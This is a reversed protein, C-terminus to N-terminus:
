KGKRLQRLRETLEAIQSEIEEEENKRSGHEDWVNMAEDKKKRSISIYPEMAQISSHGTYEIVQTATLGMDLSNVVFTKRGVHTTMLEYKKYVTECKEHQRYEVKRIQQTLGALKGIQKLYLEVSNMNLFPFLNEGPQRMYKEVIRMAYRNLRNEIYTGTKRITLHMFGDEIDTKRLAMVDSHRLGTYCQFLFIDRSLDMAGELELSEVAGIEDMTLFVVLSERKSPTKLDFKYREFDNGCYGKRFCWRLFWRLYAHQNKASRNSMGKSVCWEIYRTVGDLTALKAITTNPDFEGLKRLFGRLNDLTTDALDRRHKESTLFELWVDSPTRRSAPSKRGPKGKAKAMLASFNIDEVDGEGRAIKQCEWEIDDHFTRLIKMCERHNPHAKSKDYPENNYDARLAEIQELSMNVGITTNYRRHMVCVSLRVSYRGKKDTWSSPSIRINM